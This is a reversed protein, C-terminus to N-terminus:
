PEVKVEYGNTEQLPLNYELYRKLEQLDEIDFTIRGEFVSLGGKAIANDVVAHAVRPISEDPVASIYKAIIPEIVISTVNTMLPALEKAVTWQQSVWGTSRVKAQINAVFPMIGINSEVLSNIIPSAWRNLVAALKQANTYTAM